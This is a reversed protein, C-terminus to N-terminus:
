LREDSDRRGRGEMGQGLAVRLMRRARALRRQSTTDSVGLHESIEKHSYGELEKLIVLTRLDEPLSDLARELAISDLMRPPRGAVVDDSILVEGRCREARMHTLAARVTVSRLWAGLTGKHGFTRLTDPLHLFVTHLIDRADATSHTLRYGVAFLSDSYREYLHGLAERDGAAVKRALRTEESSEIM